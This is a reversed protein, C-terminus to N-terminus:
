DRSEALQSRWAGAVVMFALFDYLSHILIPIILNREGSVDLMLGLYLGCIGALLGYMPTIWHVLAFVLNSFLLGGLWGWHEELWPQLFGRFLLEETVGALLGVYLLEHWRCAALIGGLKDTLLERVERLREFRQTQLFAVYLPLTGLFGWVVDRLDAQLNQLPDIDSAAGAMFATAGLSGEFLTALWLFQARTLTMNM